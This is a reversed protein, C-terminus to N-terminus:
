PQVYLKVLNPEKETTLDCWFVMKTHEEILFSMDPQWKTINAAAPSWHM